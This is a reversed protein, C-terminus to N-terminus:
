LVFEEVTKWGVSEGAFKGELLQERLKGEAGLVAVM